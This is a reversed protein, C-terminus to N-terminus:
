KIVIYEVEPHDKLYTAELLKRKLRYVETEFGKVEHLQVSDDATLVEFDCFYNAIHNGNVDLSIKVQRKWEKIKGRKKELDLFHAYQAEKKSHYSIGNYIQHINKYKTTKRYQLYL